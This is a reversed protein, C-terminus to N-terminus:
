QYAKNPFLEFERKLQMKQNQQDKMIECYHTYEVLSIESPPISNVILGHRM